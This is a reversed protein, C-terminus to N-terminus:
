GEVKGNRYWCAVKKREVVVKRGRQGAGERANERMRKISSSKNLCFSFNNENHPSPPLQWCRQTASVVSACAVGMLDGGVCVSVCVFYRRGGSGM